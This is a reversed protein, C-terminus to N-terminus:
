GKQLRHLRSYHEAEHCLLEAHSGQEVIQGCVVFSKRSPEAIGAQGM